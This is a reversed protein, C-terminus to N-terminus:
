NEDDNRIEQIITKQFRSHGKFRDGLRKTKVDDITGRIHLRYVYVTEARQGDRAM